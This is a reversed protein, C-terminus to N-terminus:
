AQIAEALRDANVNLDFEERVRAQGQRGLRRRLGEDRALRQLWDALGSADDSAILLGNEEHTVLERVAPLDGIVVVLGCAMAEMAVVPVGDRDGAADTRCPLVFVDAEGLAARVQENPLGGRWEVRDDLGASRVQERLVPELPGEGVITLEAAMGAERTLRVAEILTDIGKKEVLRAVTIIRLTGESQGSENERWRDTDVGCRIVRVKGNASPELDRYYGQHWRSIASVMASRRLKKRILARRQFLDNAHGTFSFPVGMQRAAYMGVTTPAHAFHCHVHRINCQRLRGALGIGALAQVPLKLRDKVRMSEGPHVADAFGRGLTRLTHLPHRGLECAAGAFTRAAAPGYVVCDAPEVQEDRQTPPRLGVTTVTYGRARLAAVERSVFTETRQPYGGCVLAVSMANASVGDAQKYEIIRGSGRRRTGFWYRMQGQMQPFKAAICSVGYLVCDGWAWGRQRRLSWAAKTMMLPYALLGLLSLGLTPWAPALIAIPWVGAWTWISLSPRVGFWEPEGGHRGMAEAYAHGARVARKWWQGFRHMDADHLAMEADLRRITWGRRRLRYCLEPEEGAIIAENYGEAERVAAVRFLADGGVSRAEGVPTDWELDCLRNYISAEPFRERRRGCVAALKPEAALASVAREIWGEALACDGDVFQVFEVGPEMEVLRELGANRARAATFTRTMDLEVVSAGLRRTMEVSGDRSGSDVYVVAAVRKVVSRLCRGLREGENRGIAVVGINRVDPHIPTPPM